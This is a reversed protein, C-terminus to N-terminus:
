GNLLVEMLETVKTYVRLKKAYLSLNALNKNPDAAYANVAKAFTESDMQSRRKFCDCIVRERDYVKLLTGNWDGKTVGLDYVSQSIMYYRIPPYDINFRTRTVSRPYALHWELPTKDSYGYHFLASDQCVIGDPFLLAIMEEERLDMQNQQVTTYYGSRVRVIFGEKCMKSISSNRYGAANLDATRAIGGADTIIRNIKEIDM